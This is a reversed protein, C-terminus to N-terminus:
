SATEANPRDEIPLVLNPRIALRHAFRQPALGSPLKIAGGLTGIGPRARLLL